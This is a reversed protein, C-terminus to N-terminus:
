DDNLYEILLHNLIIDRKGSKKSTRINEQTALASIIADKIITVGRGELAKVHNVYLAM